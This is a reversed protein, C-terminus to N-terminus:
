EGMRELKREGQVTEGVLENKVKFKVKLQLIRRFGSIENYSRTMNEDKDSVKSFHCM